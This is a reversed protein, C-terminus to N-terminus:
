VKEWLSQKYHEGILLAYYQDITHLQIPTPVSNMKM